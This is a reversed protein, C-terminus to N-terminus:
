ENSTSDGPTTKSCKELFNIQSEEVYVKDGVQYRFLNGSVNRDFCEKTKTKQVKTRDRALRYYHSIRNNLDRM